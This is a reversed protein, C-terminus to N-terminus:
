VLTNYKIKVEEFVEESLKCIFKVNRIKWDLSKLQDALIVGSIKLGEPINVEFPYYKKQNTIPCFIALGVKINYQKPSIVFAARRGAQEHGAQPNLDIWVVECRDPVHVKKM